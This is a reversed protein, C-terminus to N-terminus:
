KVFVKTTVNGQRRIYLGNAPNDVRLGQLNYYEVPTNEDVTMNSLGSLGDNFYFTIFLEVWDDDSPGNYAGIWIVGYYKNQENELTEVYSDGNDYVVLDTLDMSTGDTLKIKCTPYKKTTSDYFYNYTYGDYVYKSITNESFTMDDYSEGKSLTFSLPSGSNLFNTITWVGNGDVTLEATQKEGYANGDTDLIYVTVNEAKVFFTGFCLLAIIFTSLQKM